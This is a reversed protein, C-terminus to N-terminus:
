YISSVGSSYVQIIGNGNGATEHGKHAQLYSLSNPYLQRTTSRILYMAELAYVKVKTFGTQSLKTDTLMKSAKNNSNIGTPKHM